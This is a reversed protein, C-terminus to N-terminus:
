HAKGEEGEGAVTGATVCCRSRSGARTDALPPRTLLDVVEAGCRVPNGNAKLLRRITQQRSYEIKSKCQNWATHSNLPKAGSYNRLKWKLLLRIILLIRAEKNAFINRLPIIFRNAPIWINKFFFVFYYERPNVNITHARVQFFGVASVFVCLKTLM